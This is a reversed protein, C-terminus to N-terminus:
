RAWAAGGRIVLGVVREDAIAGFQLQAAPELVLRGLRFALGTGARVLYGDLAGAGVEGDTHQIMLEARPRLSHTRTLPLMLRAGAGFLNRAPREATALAPGGAGDGVAERVRGSSRYLNWAYFVGSGRGVPREFTLEGVLRDGTEFYETENLRDAAFTSWSAAATIAGGRGVSREAALRLRLEDGPRFELTPRDPLPVFPEYGGGVRYAGSAGVRWEGLARVGALGTTLGFGSGFSAVPLAFLETAVEAAVAEELTDLAAVGTPVNAAVIAHVRELLVPYRLRVTLDTPGALERDPGDGGTLTARAFATNADLRLDGLAATVGIPLVMETLREDAISLTNLAVEGGVVRITGALRDFTGAAGSAAPEQAYAPAAAAALAALLPLARFVPRRRTM